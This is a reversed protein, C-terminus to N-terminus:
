QLHWRKLSAESMGCFCVLASRAAKNAAAIIKIRIPRSLFSTLTTKILAICM